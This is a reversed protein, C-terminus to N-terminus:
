PTLFDNYLVQMFASGINKLNEDSKGHLTRWKKAQVYYVYAATDSLYGFGNNFSFIADRVTVTDFLQRSFRFPKEAQALMASLSAPIDLQSVTYSVESPPSVWAGGTIILPIHYTTPAELSPQGLQLKGHDAVLVLLTSDWMPHQRLKDYFIGLCSDTYNISNLFLSDPSTGGFRKHTTPVDFPEHSSLTFAMHFFPKKAVALEDFFQEFLQADAVGWKMTKKYGTMDKQSVIRDFGANYLMSGINAFNIDGGYYFRSSYGAQGLNRALSPLQLSKNPFQAISGSGVPPFGLILAALGKDSRDGAAYCKSFYVGSRAIRDLQPTAGYPAGLHGVAKATFGELVIVILNPQSIRLPPNIDVPKSRESLIREAKHNDMFAYPNSNGTAETLSYGMNWMLNVSAHNVFPKPHFYADGPSIPTKGFGGRIPLFLTGLVLLYVGTEALKAKNAGKVVPSLWKCYLYYFLYFIAVGFVLQGAILWISVSAFAEGPTRLYHLPTVDLRFGWFRYLATDTLLMLSNLGLFIVFYLLLVFSIWQQHLQILSQVAFILAPLLLIYGTASADLRFGHILIRGWDSIPLSFAQEYQFLLFCIKSFSFFLIWLIFLLVLYKVRKLM